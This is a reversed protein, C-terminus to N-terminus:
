DYDYYDAQLAKSMLEYQAKGDRDQIAKAWRSALTNIGIAAEHPTFGKAIELATQEDVKASDFCFDFACGLDGLLIYIHLEDMYSDDQAAAPQTRRILAKAAPYDFGGLEECILTEAHNGQFQSIPVDPDYNYVFLNGVPDDSRTFNLNYTDGDARWGEPLSFSYLGTYYAKTVIKAYHEKEDCAAGFMLNAALDSLMIYHTGGIIYSRLPVQRQDIYFSTAPSYAAVVKDNSLESLELPESLEGGVPTYAMGTTLLVANKAGDWSVEFQKDTGNLAMALDRLKFYVDGDIEYAWSSTNEGDIYFDYQVPIAPTYSAGNAALAPTYIISFVLVAALILGIRKKAKKM